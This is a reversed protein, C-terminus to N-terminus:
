PWGCRARGPQLGEAPAHRPDHRRRPARERRAAPAPDPTNEPVQTIDRLSRTRRVLHAGSRYSFNASALFGAPLQYVAQVKFQWEVDSKLRGDVNVFNNPNQGFQRFQVGGRQIIGVGSGAEGAGGQGEQLSGQGADLDRLRDDAVQRDHAQDAGFSVANIDTKLEPPNTIRFQRDGPDSTLQFLQITRGTPEDAWRRGRLARPRVRRRHGALGRLQARTQQRLEGPRGPGARDRARPQPHVPGHVPERLGPRLGPERQVAVADPRHVHGTAIDYPGVFIPTISPGIKNAYEGTAVARHYRGWHGKLVTKGDGTLKWNFGLRPSFTNWTFFETKPFTVGTPNGNEDLEDARGLLGQQLRLARRPQALAPRERPHHRRPLRRHRPHRRQLQLAHLRDRLRLRALRATPTSSTTTASSAARRPTATSCASGSTTAVRGPVQGGPALGQRHGHHAEAGARVLLLARRLHLRHRHRLLPEPRAAPQSGHPRHQVDGYFGSYRVELM